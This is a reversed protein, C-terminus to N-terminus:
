EHIIIVKDEEASQNSQSAQDKNSTQDAACSSDGDNSEGDEDPSQM